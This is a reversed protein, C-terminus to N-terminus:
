ALFEGCAHGLRNDLVSVGFFLTSLGQPTCRTLAEQPCAQRHRASGLGHDPIDLHAARIKITMVTMTPTIREVLNQPQTRPAHLKVHLLCRHVQRGFQRILRGRRQKAMETAQRDAALAHM